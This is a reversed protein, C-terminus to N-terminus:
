PNESALPVYMTKKNTVLVVTFCRMRKYFVVKDLIVLGNQSYKCHWHEEVKTITPTSAIFMAARFHIFDCFM